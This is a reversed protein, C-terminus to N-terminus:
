FIANSKIKSIEVTWKNIYFKYRWFKLGTKMVQKLQPWNQVNRSENKYKSTKIKWTWFTRKINKDDLTILLYNHSDIIKYMVVPGVYKIMVKGSATCLQCTPPSIIYVLDGSNYQFFTRDKNIM